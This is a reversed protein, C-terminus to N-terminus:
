ASYFIPQHMEVPSADVMAAALALVQPSAGSAIAAAWEPHNVAAAICAEAFAEAAGLLPPSDSTLAIRMAQAVLNEYAM